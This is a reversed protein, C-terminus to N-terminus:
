GKLESSVLEITESAKTSPQNIVSSVESQEARNRAVARVFEDKDVESIRSAANLVDDLPINSDQTVAQVIGNVASILDQMADMTDKSHAVCEKRYEILKNAEEFVTAVLGGTMTNVRDVLGTADNLDLLKQSGAGIRINTFHNFFAYVQAAEEFSPIYIADRGIPFVMDAIENVMDTREAVSLRLKVSVPIEDEGAHLIIETTVPLAANKIIKDIKSISVEKM